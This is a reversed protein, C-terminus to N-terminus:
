CRLGLGQLVYPSVKDPHVKAIAKMYIIKVKSAIVLDAMGVKKWGAEPWLVTDLSGLLARLNDSKGGKWTEIRATVVDSLAFREDDAKEAAANAARLKRVAEDSQVSSTMSKAAPARQPAAAKKPTAAPAAKASAGSVARECRTRGQLSVAGGVGAEVAEQWVNGADSWKEMHELAEAKRMLAKGYFEKMDKPSEEPSVQIREGEGRSLGVIALARDADSVAMKPDGVKIATLARNSLLVICIPHNSPLPSLAATYADHATAYDGRKFAETGATRHRSSTALVTASVSPIERAVSKPRPSPISAAVRPATGSPPIATPKPQREPPASFLDFKPQTEAKPPARRRRASSVYASAAEEEIQQRNPKSSLQPQPQHRPQQAFKPQATLRDPLPHAPSRGRSVTDHAATPPVESPRQKTSRQPRAGGSELLLAEDTM